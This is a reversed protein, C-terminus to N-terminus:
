VKEPVETVFEAALVEFKGHAPCNLQLVSDDAFCREESMFADKAGQFFAIRRGCKPCGAHSNPGLTIATTM